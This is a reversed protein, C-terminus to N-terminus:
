LGGTLSRWRPPINRLLDLTYSSPADYVFHDSKQKKSMQVRSGEGGGQQGVHNKTLEELFGRKSSGVGVIANKFKKKANLSLTAFFFQGRPGAKLVGEVM